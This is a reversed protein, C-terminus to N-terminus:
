VGCMFNHIFRDRENATIFGDDYRRKAEAYVEDLERRWEEIATAICADCESPGLEEDAHGGPGDEVDVHIIQEFEKNCNPCTQKKTFTM